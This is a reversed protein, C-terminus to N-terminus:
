RCVHVLDTFGPEPSVARLGHPESQLQGAEQGQSWASEETTEGGTGRKPRLISPSKRCTM